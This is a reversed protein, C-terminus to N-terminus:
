REKKQYPHTGGRGLSKKLRPASPTKATLNENM